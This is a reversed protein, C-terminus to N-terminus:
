VDGFYSPGTSFGALHRMSCRVMHVRMMLVSFLGLGVWHFSSPEGQGAATLERVGKACRKLRCAPTPPQLVLGSVELASELRPPQPSRNRCCWHLRVGRAGPPSGRDRSGWSWLLGRSRRRRAAVGRATLAGVAPRSEGGLTWVRGPGYRVPSRWRRGFASATATAATVAGPATVGRM